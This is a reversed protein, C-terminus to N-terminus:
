LDGLTRSCGLGAGPVTSQKHLSTQAIDTKGLLQGKTNTDSLDQDLTIPFSPLSSSGMRHLLGQLTAWPVSLPMGGCTSTMPVPLEHWAEPYKFIPSHTSLPIPDGWCCLREQAATTM